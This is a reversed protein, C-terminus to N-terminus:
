VESYVVRKESLNNKAINFMVGMSALSLIIHSGGYSMFPLPLGTTPFVGVVYASNILFYVIVNMTIGLSLFFGFCDDIHQLIKISYYLFMFFLIFILTIGIFGFEEGIIPLMFDTHAAPLHGKKILSGDLGNGFLGGNSLALISGSSQSDGHGSFWNIFRRFQYSTSLIKLAVVLAGSIITYFIYKTKLGAIYILALLILSITFTTSMDPQFFILLLTIGLYPILDSLLDKMNNINKRHLEVYSALYVILGFKAVDSTSIINKGFLILGRSTPLHQSTLFGMFILIWCSIIIIRSNKNYIRYNIHSTTILLVLGILLRISQNEFFYKYDSFRSAAYASSASYLTIIGISCILFTLIKLNIIHEKL